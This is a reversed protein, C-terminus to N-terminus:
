GITTTPSCPRASFRRLDALFERADGVRVAGHGRVAIAKLQKAGMLAGHGGRGAKHYQDTSICAWPVQNEGAPGISLVKCVPCFEDRLWAETESVREGWHEGAPLFRVVDDEITVVVPESAQGTIIVADYGAYKLEPPSPDERTATPSSAPLPVRVASWSGRPACVSTGALPGTM